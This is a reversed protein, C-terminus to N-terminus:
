AYISTIENLSSDIKIYINSVDIWSNNLKYKINNIESNKIARVIINHTEGINNISYTYNVVITIQGEKTIISEIRELQQNIGNDSLSVEYDYNDPVIVLKYTDGPLQVFSGSPFLKCGSGSSNIFYYSVDGFIFILSHSEQINSITYTYYNNSELEQISTIKWQLSDNNSDTADDKGYKIDIFHEGSEIEYTITQTSNSNSARALQYNSLSDSPSSSGSSATLGDTAVTTDVKGFMGYDYNAEAYNIYEITVLCRVPLNFTIRAVSASKSVGNNTSVYYGTSSNLNFGYSANPATAVTYTPSSGSHSILQSTIDVGNDTVLTILPDSPIITITQNTGEVVRTTGRGPTTIANISSITIPYYNYEPDEDPIEIIANEIIITHDISVNSITYTWYYKSSSEPISYTVNWTIGFLKGGYYAVTFRLKANQLEARTWTGPNSVTIIQQSTSIFEQEISKLTNGSYLGIKAMHTSDTTSNERAGSCKVEISDIIANEPLDSFNFTYEAYGTSNNSAYMNSSYVNPNEATYGVPYSAYSSGSNIGSNTSSTATKSLTTESPIEKQVLQSTVDIDNDSVKINNISDGYINLIYDEGSNVETIGAPSISDIDDTALTSTVEYVIEEYSYNITLTAGYFRLTANSSTNSTGRTGAVRIYCSDLESRTWTGCNLTQTSSTSNSFSTSSGKATSTGKYLQVSRTSIYSTSSVYCKAVCSVSNIIADSPISSCNFAWFAYSQARSGTTCTITAYTTNSESKGVPNNQNQINSYSGSVFSAPNFTLTDTNTITKSM